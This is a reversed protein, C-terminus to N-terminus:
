RGCAPPATTATWRAPGDRGAGAPDLLEACRAPWCAAVPLRHPRRGRRQGRPHPRGRRAAHAADPYDDSSRARGDARDDVHRRVGTMPGGARTDDRRRRRQRAAEFCLVAGAMGVNISEARGEMPIHVLGDLHTDLDAPLGSAENGLVIAVAGGLTLTPTRAGRGSPRAWPSGVQPASARRHGDGADGGVVVAVHFMAGASARVCKPNYVDVTGDCCVVGAAGAAEASRLITGLNGPDRVDVCVLVPRPDDLIATSRSTADHAVIALVPQPTATGAVRELVGPALDHVRLGREWALAVSPDDPVGADHAASGAPAVFVAEVPAGAALAERM